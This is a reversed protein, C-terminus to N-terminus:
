WESREALYLEVGDPDRFFAFRMPSDEVVDDVFEIGRKALAKMGINQM